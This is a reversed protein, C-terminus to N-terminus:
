RLFLNSIFTRHAKVPVTFELGLPKLSNFTYESEAAVIGKHGTPLPGTTLTLDWDGPNLEADIFRNSIYEVTYLNAGGHQECYEAADSVVGQVKYWGAGWLIFDPIVLALPFAVAFIVLYEVITFGKTNKFVKLIRNM